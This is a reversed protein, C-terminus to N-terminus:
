SICFILCLKGLFNCTLSDVVGGFIQFDLTYPRFNEVKRSILSFKHQKMVDDNLCDHLHFRSSGFLWDFNIKYSKRGILLDNIQYM